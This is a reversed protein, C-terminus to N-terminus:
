VGWDCAGIHQMGVEGREEQAWPVRLCGRRRPGCRRKMWEKCWQGGCRLEGAECRAGECAEDESVPTGVVDADVAGM